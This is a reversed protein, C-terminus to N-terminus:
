RIMSCLIQNWSGHGLTPTSSQMITWSIKQGERSLRINGSDNGKLKGYKKRYGKRAPFNCLEARNLELPIIHNARTLSIYTSTVNTLKSSYSQSGVQSKERERGCFADTNLSSATADVQAGSYPHCSASFDVWSPCTIPALILGWNKYVGSIKPDNNYGTRVWVTYFLIHALHSRLM